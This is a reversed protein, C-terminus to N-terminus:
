FLDVKPSHLPSSLVTCYLVTCYLVTCYLVTCYLVTCYSTFFTVSPLPPPSWSPNKNPYVMMNQVTNYHIGGHETCYQLTYWLTRYLITIYVM